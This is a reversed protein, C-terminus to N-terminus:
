LKVWKHLIIARNIIFTHVESDKYIIRTNLQNKYNRYTYLFAM